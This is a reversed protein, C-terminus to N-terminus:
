AAVQQEIREAEVLQRYAAEEIFDAWTKENRVDTNVVEVFSRRPRWAWGNAGICVHPKDCNTRRHYGRPLLELTKPTINM